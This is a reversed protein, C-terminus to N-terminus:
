RGTDQESPHRQRVLWKLNGVLTVPYAPYSRALFEHAAAPDHLARVLTNLDTSDSEPRLSMEEVLAIATEGVREITAQDPQAPFPHTLFWSEFVSRYFRLVLQRPNDLCFSYDRALDSFGPRDPLANLAQILSSESLYLNQFRALATARMGSTTSDQSTLLTGIVHHVSEVNWTRTLSRLVTCDFLHLPSNRYRVTTALELASNWAKQAGGENGTQRLLMGEVLLATVRRRDEAQDDQRSAEIHTRAADFDGGRAARRAREMELLCIFTAHQEPIQSWKELNAALLSDTESHTLRCWGELCNVTFRLNTENREYAAKDFTSTYLNLAGQDLRAMHMAVAFYNATRLVPKRLLTFAQVARNVRMADVGLFGIGYGQGQYCSEVRTAVGRGFEWLISYPLEQPLNKMLPEAAKVGQRLVTFCWLHYAAADRWKGPPGESLLAWQRLAEQQHGRLRWLCHAAKYRAETGYVPDAQVSEYLSLAEAWLSQHCLIDADELAHGTKQTRTRLTLERLSADEPWLLYIKNSGRTSGLAMESEFVVGSHENIYVSIQRPEVRLRLRLFSDSFFREPVPVVRQIANNQRFVVLFSEPQLDHDLFALVNDPAHSTRYLSADMELQQYSLGVGITKFSQPDLTLTASIEVPLTLNERIIIKSPEGTASAFRLEEQHVLPVNRPFFHGLNSFPARLEDMVTWQALREALKARYPEAASPGDHRELWDLARTMWVSESDLIQNKQLTLSVDQLIDAFVTRQIQAAREPALRRVEALLGDISDLAHSPWSHGQVAATIRSEIRNLQRAQEQRQWVGLLLCGLIVCGAVSATLAPRRRAQRALHTLRSVPRAKVPMAALFSALDDALETGNAYRDAPRHALAKLVICELDRPIAPNLASPRAPPREDNHRQVVVTFEGPHPPVDTLLEYFTAGLAYVDTAPSIPSRRRDFQEPAMYHVTGLAENTLTLTLENEVKAISFDAIVPQHTVASVLINAPKLDRHVIGLGHFWGAARAVQAMLKVREHLGLRHTSCWRRLDLGPIFEMVLCFHEGTIKFDLIPVVSEHAGADRLKVLTEGEVELRALAQEDGVRSSDLLKLAVIRGTAVERARWVQGMAGAGVRELLEFRGEWGFPTLLAQASANQM